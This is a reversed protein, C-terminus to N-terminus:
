SRRGRRGEGEGRHEPPLAHFVVRPLFHLRVDVQHKVIGDLVVGRAVGDVHLDSDEAQQRPHSSGRAAIRTRLACM